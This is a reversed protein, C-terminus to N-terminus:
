SSESRGRQPRSGLRREAGPRDPGPKRSLGRDVAFSLRGHRLRGRYTRSRHRCQGPREPAHPFRDPIRGRMTDWMLRMRHVVPSAGRRVHVIAPRTEFPSRERVSFEAARMTDVIDNAIRERGIGRFAAALRGAVTSHGGDLLRRLVDSADPVLALATRAEVTNRSFFRAPCAVLAAPLGFARMGDLEVVDAPDPM